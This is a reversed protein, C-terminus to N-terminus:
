YLLPPYSMSALMSFKLKRCERYNHLCNHTSSGHYVVVGVNVHLIHPERIQQNVLSTIRSEGVWHSRTEDRENQSSLLNMLTHKLLPRRHSDKKSFRLTQMNLGFGLYTLFCIGFGKAWFFM